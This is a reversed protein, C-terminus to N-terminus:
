SGGLDPENFVDVDEVSFGDGPKDGYDSYWSAIAFFMHSCDHRIKGRHAHNVWAIHEIAFKVYEPASDWHRPCLAGNEGVTFSCNEAMCDPLFQIIPKESKMRDFESQM